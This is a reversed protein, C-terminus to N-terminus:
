RQAILDGPRDFVFECTATKPSCTVLGRLAIRAHTERPLVAPFQASRLRQAMAALRDDGLLFRADGVVAGNPGREILVVFEAKGDAAARGLSITRDRLLDASTRKVQADIAADTNAPPGLLKKLRDRTEAPPDGAAIAEEYAHIALAKEGRAEYLQGLHDGTDSTQNLRWAAQILAEADAARGQQFYVWGLTDWFAPLASMTVLNDPTVHELDIESLGNETPGVAADAYQKARDLATKHEALTYAIDNNVLPTPSLTGAKEFDALAADTKGLGLEAEGLRVHITASEPNLVEAKELERRAKDFQKQSIYVAGLYAYADQDLPKVAIQKKFAAEAQDYKKQDYLAVGILTNANEDKPNAALQKNLSALADDYRGLDLQVTGMELWLDRQQPNLEEVQGFLLLANLLHRDRIAAAGAQMLEPASAEEPVGPIMNDVVVGRSQDAQVALTFAAYDGRSSPPLESSIFHLTREATITHEQASYQSQYTAYSRTVGAGVPVRASDNVPLDLTLKATVTLPSGLQIPKSADTPPDPLGFVPLFLSTPVSPRSWDLFDPLVLVFNLSLPDRTDTLNSADASTVTGHLGDLTAMTQAVSNWESQPTRELATRLAFENDGRLTYRVRATLKGLSTVSASIVVDQTSPFPPDAPTDAFYPPASTSAVLAKKGRANPLLLRFPLTDEIPEMWLTDKGTAGAAVLVAAHAIAGPWPLEPDFKDEVPLLAVNAHFGDASLMSALLTCKDFEDGYGASLVKAADHIQFDAQEAPIRVAGVKKAVYDYLAEVKDADTKQDAILDKSKSTIDDTATGATHEMSAFWKALADWSAFSTLAVDPPKTTDAPTSGTAAANLRKWSYIKRDGATSIKPPFADAARFHIARAAPVNIELEEDLAPESTLFKHAFWFEGPAPPRLVTTIEEYTLTDGPAMAPVIVKAERLESFAPADKAAPALDDKVADPKAEVTKGDPKTVRLFALSVKENASDYDFSLTKLEDVGEATGARVRVDVQRTGTGDNEFRVKLSYLDITLPAANAPNARVAAAAPKTQPSSQATNSSTASVSPVTLAGVGLLLTTMGLAIRNYPHITM